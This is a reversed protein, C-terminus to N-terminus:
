TMLSLAMSSSSRISPTAATCIGGLDMAEVLDDALALFDNFDFDHLCHPAILLTTDRKEPSIEALAELEQQLEEALARADSAQSM